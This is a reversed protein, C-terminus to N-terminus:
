VIHGIIFSILLDVGVTFGGIIGVTVTVVATSGVLEDWTPWTCKKMEVMTESWYASFKLFLGARVALVFVVSLVVIGIIYPILDKM